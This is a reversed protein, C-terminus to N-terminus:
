KFLEMEQVLIFDNLNSIKENYHNEFATIIKTSIDDYGVLDTFNYAKLSSHYDVAPIAMNIYNGKIYFSLKNISNCLYIVHSINKDSYTNLFYSGLMIASDVGLSIDNNIEINLLKFIHKLNSISQQGSKIDCFYNNSFVNRFLGEMSVFSCNVGNIRHRILPMIKDTYRFKFDLMVLNNDEWSVDIDVTLEDDGWVMLEDQLMCLFVEAKTSLNEKVLANLSHVSGILEDINLDTLESVRIDFTNTKVFEIPSEITILKSNIM